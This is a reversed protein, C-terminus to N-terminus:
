CPLASAASLGACQSQRCCSSEVRVASTLRGSAAVSPAASANLGRRRPVGRAAGGHDLRLDNERHHTRDDHEDDTGAKGAREADDPRRAEYRYRALTSSGFSAPTISAASANPNADPTPKYASADSPAANTM